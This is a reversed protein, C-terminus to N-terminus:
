TEYLCVEQVVSNTATATEDPDLVLKSGYYMDDRVRSVMYVESGFMM